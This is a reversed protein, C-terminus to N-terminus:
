TDHSATFLSFHRTGRKLEQNILKNLAENDGDSWDLLLQAVQRQSLADM